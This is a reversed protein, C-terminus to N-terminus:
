GMPRQEITKADVYGQLIVQDASTLTIAAM